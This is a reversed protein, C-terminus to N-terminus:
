IDAKHSEGDSVRGDPGYVEIGHAALNRFASNRQRYLLLADVGSKVSLALLEDPLRKCFEHMLEDREM